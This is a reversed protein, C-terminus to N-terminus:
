KRWTLQMVNPDLKGFPHVLRDQWGYKERFAAHARERLSEDAVLEVRLLYAYGGIRLMMNPDRQINRFWRTGGTRILGQGDVVVLWLKTVRESGDPDQTVIVPVRESSVAGWDIPTEAMPPSISTCTLGLMVLSALLAREKM